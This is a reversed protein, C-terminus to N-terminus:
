SFLGEFKSEEFLRALPRIIGGRPDVADGPFRPILHFHLHFVTQGAVAGRNIGINYDESFLKRNKLSEITRRLAEPLDATEWPLLDELNACHRKPILLTHGRRVPMIPTIAFWQTSQIWIKRVPKGRRSAALIRCFPCTRPRAM